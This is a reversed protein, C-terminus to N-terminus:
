HDESADQFLADGHERHYDLARAVARTVARPTITAGTFQDFAGGDRRVTWQDRPPDGLSRGRFGQIWDSRRAEIADGLGPTEEHDVVRVGLVEGGTDVAVLLQIPGSYGDPAVVTLVLAAAEGNRRARYVPVSQETGLRPDRVMRVDEAPNNTHHEDPLVAQLQQLTQEARRADIRDATYQQTLAVLGVGVTAVVALLGAATLMDRLLRRPTM